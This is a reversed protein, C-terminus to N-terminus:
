IIADAKPFVLWKFYNKRREKEERVEKRQGTKGDRHVKKIIRM